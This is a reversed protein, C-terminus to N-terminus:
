KKTYFGEIIQKGKLEVIRNTGHAKKELLCNQVHAFAKGFSNVTLDYSYQVIFMPNKVPNPPNLLSQTFIFFYINYRGVGNKLV